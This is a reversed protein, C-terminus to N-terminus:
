LIIKPYFSLFRPHQCGCIWGVRKGVENFSSTPCSHQSTLLTFHVQQLLKGFLPTSTMKTIYLLWPLPSANITVQPSSHPLFFFLFIHLFLLIPWEAMQSLSLSLVLVTYDLLIAHTLALLLSSFFISLLLFNHSIYLSFSLLPHFFFTEKKRM